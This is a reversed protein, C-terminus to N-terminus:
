DWSALWRALVALELYAHGGAVQLYADRLTGPAWVGVCALVPLAVAAAAIAAVVPATLERELARVSAGFGRMGARTRLAAPILRLWIAYHVGQLFVFSLAIRACLAPSWRELASEPLVYGAIDDLAARPVVGDLAGALVAMAVALAAAPLAWRVRARRTLAAFVGLAVANHAHVVVYITGIPWSWAAWVLPACGALALLRGRGRGPALVVAGAVVAAGIVAAAGVQQSSAVALAALGVILVADRARLSVRRYPPLLLYRIDAVVHPIGLVLPAWLFWAGPAAVSVALALGIAVAAGVALRIGRDAAVSRLRESRGLVGRVLPSRVRDLKLAVAALATM